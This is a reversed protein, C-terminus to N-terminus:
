TCICCVRMITVQLLVVDSRLVNQETSQTREVVDFDRRLDAVARRHLTMEASLM